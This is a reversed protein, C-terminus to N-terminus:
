GELGERYGYAYPDLGGDARDLLMPDVPAGHRRAERGARVGARYQAHNVHQPIVFPPRARGPTSVMVARGAKGVEMAVPCAHM